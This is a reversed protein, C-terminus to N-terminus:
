PEGYREELVRITFGGDFPGAPDGETFYVWDSLEEIPLSVWEGLTKGNLLARHPPSSLVAEIRFPSWSRPNVWVHEVGGDACPAAWKIAWHERDEASAQLWSQRAKSATRRAEAIAEQLQADDAEDPVAVRDSETQHRWLRGDPAARRQPAARVPGSAEEDCAAAVMLCAALALRRATPRQRSM